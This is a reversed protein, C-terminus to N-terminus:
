LFVRGRRASMSAERWRSRLQSTGASATTAIEIPPIEPASALEATTPPATDADSTVDVVTTESGIFRELVRLQPEAGTPPVYEEALSPDNLVSPEWPSTETGAFPVARVAVREATDTRSAEAETASVKPVAGV